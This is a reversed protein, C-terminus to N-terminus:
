LETVARVIEVQSPRIVAHRDGGALEVWVDYVYKGPALTATDSPSLFFRGIGRNTVQDPDIEAEASTASSKFIVANSAGTNTKVTFYITAGTLDVTNKEKDRVTLRLTKSEGRLLTLPKGRIAM